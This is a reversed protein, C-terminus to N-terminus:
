GDTLADEAAQRRDIAEREAKQAAELETSARTFRREAEQAAREAERRRRGADREAAKAERIEAQLERRREREAARREREAERERDREDREERERERDRDRDAPRRAGKPAAKRPRAEPASPAAAFGELGGFAAPRRERTLRAAAVEARAEDDTAAAHLSERVRDLVADSLFGEERALGRAAAVLDGVARREAEGAKRATGADGRGALLDDQAARLADGAELLARREEAQSRLVQNAAWAAVTPKRRAKIADAEERRKEGRLRKALADREPVFEELPLGYLRDIEEELDAVAACSLAGIAGHAM